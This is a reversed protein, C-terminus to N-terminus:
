SCMVLKRSFALVINYYVRWRFADACAMCIKVNKRIACVNDLFRQKKGNYFVMTSFANVDSKGNNKLSIELYENSTKSCSTKV